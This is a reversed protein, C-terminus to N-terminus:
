GGRRTGKCRFLVCHMQTEPVTTHCGSLNFPKDNSLFSTIACVKEDSDDHTTMKQASAAAEELIKLKAECEEQFNQTSLLLHLNCKKLPM